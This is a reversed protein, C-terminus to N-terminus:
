HGGSAFAIFGLNPVHLREFDNGRQGSDTVDHGKGLIAFVQQNGGTVASRQPPVKGGIRVARDRAPIHAPYDGGIKRGIAAEGDQAMLIPHDLKQVEIRSLVESNPTAMLSGHTRNLKRGTAILQDTATAVPRDGHPIHRCLLVEARAGLMAARNARQGKGVVALHQGRAAARIHDFKPFRGIEAFGQGRHGIM